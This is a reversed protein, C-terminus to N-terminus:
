PSTKNIYIIKNFYYNWFRGKYGWIEPPVSKTGGSKMPGSKTGYLIKDLDSKMGYRIKDLVSKTGYRIKDLVSKTGSRGKDGAPSPGVPSRSM